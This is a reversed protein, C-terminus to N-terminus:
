KVFLYKVVAPLIASVAAGLLWLLLNIKTEMTTLRPVIGKEKSGDGNVSRELEHIREELNQIETKIAAIEKATSPDACM